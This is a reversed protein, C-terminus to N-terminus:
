KGSPALLNETVTLRRLFWSLENGFYVMTELDLVDNEAHSQAYGFQMSSVHLKDSLSVHRPRVFRSYSVAISDGVLRGYKMRSFWFDKGIQPVFANSGRIWDRRVLPYLKLMDAKSM